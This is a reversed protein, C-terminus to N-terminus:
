EDVEEFQRHGSGVKRLWSQTIGRNGKFALPVVIPLFPMVRRLLNNTLQPLGVSHETIAARHHLHTLMALDRLLRIVPPSILIRTQFSIISGLLPRTPDM